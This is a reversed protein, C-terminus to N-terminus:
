SGAQKIADHRRKVETGAENLAQELKRLAPQFENRWADRFRTAAPGEWWTHGLQRNISAMLQDVERAHQDFTKKLQEMQVLEAGVKAM